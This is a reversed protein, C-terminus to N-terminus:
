KRANKKPKKLLRTVDAKRPRKKGEVLLRAGTEPTFDASVIVTWGNAFTLTLRQEHDPAWRCTALRAGDITEKFCRDPDPSSTAM